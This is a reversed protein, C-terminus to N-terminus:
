ATAWCTFTSCATPLSAEGPKWNPWLSPDKRWRHVTGRNVGLQAAVDTVTMGFVLLDVARAQKYKVREGSREAEDPWDYRRPPMQGHHRELWDPLSLPAGSSVQESQGQSEGESNGDPVADAEHASDGEPIECVGSLASAELGDPPSVRVVPITGTLVAHGNGNGPSAGNTHRGNTKTMTNM